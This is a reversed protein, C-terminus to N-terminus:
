LRAQGIEKRAEGGVGGSESLCRLVNACDCERAPPTPLYLNKYNTAFGFIACLGSSFVSALNLIHADGDVPRQADLRDYLTSLLGNLLM